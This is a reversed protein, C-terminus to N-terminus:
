FVIYYKVILDSLKYFNYHILLLGENNVTPKSLVSSGIDESNEDTTPQDIVDTIDLYIL